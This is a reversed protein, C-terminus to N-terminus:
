PSAIRRFLKTIIETRRAFRRAFTSQQSCAVVWLMVSISCAYLAPCPCLWTSFNAHQFGGRNLSDFSINGVSLNLTFVLLRSTNSILSCYLVLTRYFLNLLYIQYWQSLIVWRLILPPVFRCTIIITKEGDWTVNDAMIKAHTTVDQPSLQPSENPQTHVWGLPELERFFFMM